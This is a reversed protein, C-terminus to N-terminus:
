YLVSAVEELTVRVGPIAHGIETLLSFYLEGDRIKKDQYLVAILEDLTMKEEYEVSFFKRLTAEIEEAAETNLGCKLVSLRTALIMGIVVAEGHLMHNEENAISWSEVAHGLTHGFNLVRRRDKEYVDENVVTAKVRIIAPMLDLLNIHSPVGQRLLNWLSVDGILAHKYVEAMGNLYERPPLTLLFDPQIFVAEPQRITGIMNKFSDHDIGNKGGLSADVMAMLTTPVFICRMGRKYLSSIFGGLDSLVGGCLCIMLEDKAIADELLQSWIQSCVELSKSEEGSPVVLAFTEYRDGIAANLRDFCCEYTHEDAFVIIRKGSYHHQLWVPLAWANPTAIFVPSGAISFDPTM